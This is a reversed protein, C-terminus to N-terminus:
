WCAPWAAAPHRARAAIGTFNVVPPARAAAAPAPQAGAGPSRRRAGAAPQRAAEAHVQLPVRAARRDAQRGARGARVRVAARRGDGGRRLRHGPPDAPEAVGVSTSRARARRHRAAARRRGRHGQEAAEPPYDAEVFKTQKPVKTLKSADIQEPRGAARGTPQRSAPSAAGALRAGPAARICARGRACRSAAASASARRVAHGGLAVAAAAGAWATATTASWWSSARPTARPLGQHAGAGLRERARGRAARRRRHLQHAGRRHRRERRVLDATLRERQTAPKVDTTMAAPLTEPMTPRVTAQHRRGRGARCPRGRRTAGIPTDM